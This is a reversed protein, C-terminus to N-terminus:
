HTPSNNQRRYNEAGAVELLYRELAVCFEAQTIKRGSLSRIVLAVETDDDNTEVDFIFDDEEVIM